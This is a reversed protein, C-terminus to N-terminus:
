RVSGIRCHNPCLTGSPIVKIHSFKIFMMIDSIRGESALCGLYHLSCSFTHLCDNYYTIICHILNLDMIWYRYDMNWAQRDMDEKVYQAAETGGVQAALQMVSSYLQPTAVGDKKAQEWQDLAESYRGQSRPLSPLQLM